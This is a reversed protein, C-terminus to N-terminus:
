VLVGCLTKFRCSGLLLLLLLAVLVGGVIFAAFDKVPNVCSYRVCVHVVGSGGGGGDDGGGVGGGGGSWRCHFRCLGQCFDCLFM